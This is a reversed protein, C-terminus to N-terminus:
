QGEELLVSGINDIIALIVDLSIGLRPVLASVDEVELARGTHAERDGLEDRVVLVVVHRLRLVGKRCQEIPVLVEGLVEAVIQVDRALAVASDVSGVESPLYVLVILEHLHLLHLGLQVQLAEDYAVAGGLPVDVDRRREGLHHVIEVQDGLREEVGVPVVVADVVVSLLSLLLAEEENTGVVVVVVVDLEEEEVGGRM